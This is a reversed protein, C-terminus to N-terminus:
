GRGYYWIEGSGGGGFHIRRWGFRWIWKGLVARTFVKLDKVRLRGWEKPPTVVSRNVLHFKKFNDTTDLLFNQHLRDLKGIM